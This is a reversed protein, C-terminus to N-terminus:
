KQEGEWEFPAFAIMKNRWEPKRLAYIIFPLIVMIFAGGFLVAYWVTTSGTAIQAPPIFSLVFALLSGLFGVGAIIWMTANGGLRFPRDKSARRYRLVIASAFMLMYM